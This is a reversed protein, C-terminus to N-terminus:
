KSEICYIDIVYRNSLVYVNEIEDVVYESVIFFFHRACEAHSVQGKAERNSRKVLKKLCTSSQSLFYAFCRKCARFCYNENAARKPINNERENEARCKEGESQKPGNARESHILVLERTLPLVAARAKNQKAEDRESKKKRV